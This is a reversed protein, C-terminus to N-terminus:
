QATEAKYGTYALQLATQMINTAVPSHLFTGLLDTALQLRALGYDVKATAVYKEARPLAYQRVVELIEDDTKTPTMRAVVGVADLAEPLIKVAASIAAEAKGTVFFWGVYRLANKAGAYISKFFQM